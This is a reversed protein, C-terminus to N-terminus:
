SNKLLLLLSRTYFFDVVVTRKLSFHFHFFSTCFFITLFIFPSPVFISSSFVIAYLFFPFKKEKKVQLKSNKEMTIYLKKQFVFLIYVTRQTDIPDSLM